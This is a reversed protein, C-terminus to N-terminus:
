QKKKPYTETKKTPKWGSDLDKVIQDARQVVEGRLACPGSLSYGVPRKKLKKRDSTFVWEFFSM